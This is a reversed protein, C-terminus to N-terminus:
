DRGFRAKIYCDHSCYKPHRSGYFSFDRGC